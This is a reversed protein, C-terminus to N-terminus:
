GIYMLLVIAVTALLLILGALSGAVIAVLRDTPDPSYRFSVKYVAITGLLRLILGAVIAVTGLRQIQGALSSLM